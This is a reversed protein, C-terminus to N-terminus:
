TEKKPSPSPPPSRRAAAQAQRQTELQEAVREVEKRISQDLDLRRETAAVLPMILQRYTVAMELVAEALRLGDSPTMAEPKPDPKLEGVARAVDLLTSAIRTSGDADDGGLKRRRVYEDRISEHRAQEAPTPQGLLHALKLLNEEAGTTLTQAEGRYHDRLLADIEDDRMMPTIKGALKTMNRYSGQLKFPPETRYADHQAASEIYALNVKLLLDRVKFLRQLLATM